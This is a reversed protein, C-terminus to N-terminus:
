QETLELEDLTGKVSKLEELKTQNNKIENNIQEISIKPMEIKKGNPTLALVTVNLVLDYDSLNPNDVPYKQVNWLKPNTEKTQGLIIYETIVEGNELISESNGNVIIESKLVENNSKKRIEFQITKPGILKNKGIYQYSVELEPVMEDFFSTKNLKTESIRFLNLTKKTNAIENKQLTLHDIENTLKEIEKKNQTKLIDEALTIVSSFSLGDIMELSIKNFSKNDYKEPAEWKLKMAELAIVRLAKELNIKESQSLNKEIKERSTKFDQENKGNFKEQCGNFIFSVSLLVIFCKLQMFAPKNTM